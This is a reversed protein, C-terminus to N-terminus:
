DSFISEIAIVIWRHTMENLILYLLRASNYFYKNDNIVFVVYIKEIFLTGNELNIIM